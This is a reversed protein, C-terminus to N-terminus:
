HNFFEFVIRSKGMKSEVWQGEHEESRHDSNNSRDDGEKGVFVMDRFCLEGDEEGESGDAKENTSKSSLENGIFNSAM